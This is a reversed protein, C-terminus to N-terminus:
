VRSVIDGAFGKQTFSPTINKSGCNECKRILVYPVGFFLWGEFIPMFLAMAYFGSESAFKSWVGLMSALKTIVYISVELPVVILLYYSILQKLAERKM